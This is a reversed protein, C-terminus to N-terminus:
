VAVFVAAQSIANPAFNHLEVGYHHCLARIFDGAPVGFGQEHLRALSIVYDSPPKPETESGPVIWVLRAPNTNAPLLGATVLTELYPADATSRGWSVPDVKRVTKVM